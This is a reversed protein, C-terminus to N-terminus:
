TAQGGGFGAAILVGASETSDGQAAPAAGGGFGASAPEESPVGISGGGEGPLGSDDHSEAFEGTVSGVGFGNVGGPLAEGSGGMGDDDSSAPAMAMGGFVAAESDPTPSQAGSGPVVDLDVLRLGQASVEQWKALFHQWDAGSWLYYGDTGPLWVGSFRQGQATQTIEIDVLRLGQTALTQWKSVFNSWDANVWLYHGGTGQRWV